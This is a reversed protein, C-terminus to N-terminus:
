EFSMMNKGVLLFMSQVILLWDCAQFPFMGAVKTGDIRLSVAM